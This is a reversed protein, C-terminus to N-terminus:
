RLFNAAAADAFRLGNRTLHFGGDWRRGWGVSVMENIDEAWEKRLDFGTTRIFEDFNWGTNMRLGFAATEGARALPALKEHSEIARRGKELQECYLQTNSWNKTREGRVYGTASPGVGHFDGGRWYNLNHRCALAPPLTEDMPAPMMTQGRRVDRAFNAIEYQRLGEAAACDVLADYMACALDEDVDFEGAQL